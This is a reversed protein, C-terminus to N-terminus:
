RAAIDGMVWGPMNAQQGEQLGEQCIPSGQQRWCCPEWAALLEGTHVICEQRVVFCLMCEQAQKTIDNAQLVDRLAQPSQRSAFFRKLVQGVEPVAM